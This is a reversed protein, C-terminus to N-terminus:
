RNQVNLLNQKTTIPIEKADYGKYLNKSVLTRYDFDPNIFVTKCKRCFWGIVQYDPNTIGFVIALRRTKEHCKNCRQSIQYDM